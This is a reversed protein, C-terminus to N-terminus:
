QTVRKWFRSLIQPDRLAEVKEWQPYAQKFHMASMHADKAPYLRGGAENVLADLKSFLRQNTLDHHPFDLALSVGHLPFSLLGPSEIAGCQKLVALFSGAGSKSIQQMVARIVKPGDQQPVVCQYQQFGASGYMRNWNQLRDLPYFFPDYGVLDAVEKRTQRHYYLTNFARLSLSNVLSFPPDFPMRLGGSSAVSIHGNEAHNGAIYHGRGAQKGSALCDVWAVTYEHSADHAQSLQFFEDFGGFRITNQNIESSVVRRLQLEVTLIVGSLGLGGVTASFLDPRNSPSCQVTGSDSRYMSLSKIHRGFTGMVHHNKGHVDNAVAGGLTVFKTGPTVTLFWGRPLAIRILEALTLGAQALVVGTDWDAALVRDMSQMALVHGSEALCSDGYSRGYGFALTGGHGLSSIAAVGKAADDPWHVSHPTQPHQPYRGWSLVKAM